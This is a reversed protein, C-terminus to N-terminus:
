RMMESVSLNERDLLDAVFAMVADEETAGEGTIPHCDGCGCYTSEDYCFWDFSRVPIPPYVFSTKIDM